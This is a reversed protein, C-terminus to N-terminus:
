IIDAKQLCEEIEKLNNTYKGDKYNVNKHTSIIHVKSAKEILLTSLMHEVPGPENSGALPFLHAVEKPNICLISGNASSHSNWIAYAVNFDKAELEKLTEGTTFFVDEALMLVKGTYDEVKSYIFNYGERFIAGNKAHGQGSTAQRSDTEPTKTTTNPVQTKCFYHKNIGELPPQNSYEAETLEYFSVCRIDAEPLFHRVSKISLNLTKNRFFNRFFIIM